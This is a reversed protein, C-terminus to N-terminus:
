VVTKKQYSDLNYKDKEIDEIYDQLKLKSFDEEQKIKEPLITSILYIFSIIVTILIIDILTPKLKM